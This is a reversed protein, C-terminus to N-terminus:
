VTRGRAGAFLSKRCGFRTQRYQIALRASFDQSTGPNNKIFEIATEIETLFQKLEKLLNNAKNM